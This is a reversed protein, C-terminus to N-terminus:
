ENPKVILSDKGQNCKPLEIVEGDDTVQKLGREFSQYAGKYKGEIQTLEQKKEAWDPLHKFDFRRAGNRKEFKFGEHVFTKEYKAAEDLAAEEIAKVSDTVVKLYDKALGYAKLPDETGDFVDQALQTINLFNNM